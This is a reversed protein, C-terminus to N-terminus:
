PTMGVPTKKSAALATALQQYRPRLTADMPRKDSEWAEMIKRATELSQEASEFDNQQIYAETLHLHVDPFSAKEGARRLLEIGDDLKKNKVLIWGHTDWIYYTLENLPM